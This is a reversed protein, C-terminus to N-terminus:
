RWHLFGPSFCTSEQPGHGAPTSDACERIAAGLFREVNYFRSTKEPKHYPSEINKALGPTVRKANMVPRSTEAGNECAALGLKETEKGFVRLSFGSSPRMKRRREFSGEASGRICILSETRVWIIKPMSTSPIFGSCVIVTSSEAAPQGM